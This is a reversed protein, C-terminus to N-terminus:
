EPYLKFGGVEKGERVLYGMVTEGLTVLNKPHYRGPMVFEKQLDFLDAKVDKVIPINDIVDIIDASTESNIQIHIPRKEWNNLREALRENM